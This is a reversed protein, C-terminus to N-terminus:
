LGALLSNQVRFEVMKLMSTLATRLGSATSVAESHDVVLMEHVAMACTSLLQASVARMFRAAESEVTCSKRVM